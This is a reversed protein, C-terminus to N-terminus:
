LHIRESPQSSKIFLKLYTFIDGQYFIPHSETTLIGTVFRFAPVNYILYLKYTLHQNGPTFECCVESSASSEIRIPKCWHLAFSPEIFWFASQLCHKWSGHLTFKAEWYTWSAQFMNM